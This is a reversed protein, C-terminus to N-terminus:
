TYGLHPPILMLPFRFVFEPPYTDGKDLFSNDSKLTNRIRILKSECRKAPDPGPNTDISLLHLKIFLVKKGSLKLISDFISFIIVCKVSILFIFWQINVPLATVLTFFYSKGVHTFSPTPNAHPDADNQRWDSRILIPMLM